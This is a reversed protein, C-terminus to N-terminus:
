QLMQSCIRSRNGHKGRLFAHRCICGIKQQRRIRAAVSTEYLTCWHLLTPNTCGCRSDRQSSMKVPQLSPRDGVDKLSCKFKKESIPAPFARGLAPERNGYEARQQSGLRLCTPRFYKFLLLSRCWVVESIPSTRLAFQMPNRAPLM